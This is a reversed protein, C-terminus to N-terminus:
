YWDNPVKVFYYHTEQGQGTKKRGILFDDSFYFSMQDSFKTLPNSKKNIPTFLITGREIRWKGTETYEEFAHVSESIKYTKNNLITIMLSWKGDGRYYTAVVNESFRSTDYVRRLDSKFNVVEKTASFRGSSVIIQENSYNSNLLHKEKVTTTDCLFQLYTDTKLFTGEARITTDAWFLQNTTLYFTNDTNLILKWRDFVTLYDYTIKSNVKQAQLFCGSFTLLLNLFIIKM